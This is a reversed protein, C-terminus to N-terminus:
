LKPQEAITVKPKKPPSGVPTAIGCLSIVGKNLTDVVKDAFEDTIDKALPHGGQQLFRCNRFTCRGLDSSWCLFPRGNPHVFQPLTPLDMQKKGAAQLLKALHVSGNTRELYASMMTKLKPHQEDHWNARWDRPQYTNPPYYGGGYGGGLAGMGQYGQGGYQQGGYQTGRYQKYGRGPPRQTQRDNGSGPNGSGQTRSNQQGQEQTITKKKSM